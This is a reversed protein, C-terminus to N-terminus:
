TTSASKSAILQRAEEATQAFGYRDARVLRGYAQVFVKWFTSLVDNAGVLVTIGSRPHRKAILNRTHTLALPPADVSQSMDLIAHVTHDVSDLMRTNKAVAAEAEDWTWSDRFDLRVITKDDNDWYIQVTM